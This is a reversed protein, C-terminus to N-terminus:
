LAERGDGLDARIAASEALADRHRGMGSLIEAHLVRLPFPNPGPHHRYETCRRLALTDSDLQWLKAVHDFAVSAALEARRGALTYAERYADDMGSANGRRFEEDARHIAAALPGGPALQFSEGAPMATM